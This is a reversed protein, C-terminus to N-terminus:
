FFLKGSFYNSFQLGGYLLLTIFKWVVDLTYWEVYMGEHHNVRSIDAWPQWNREPEVHRWELLAIMWKNIFIGFNPRSWAQFISRSFENENWECDMWGVSGVVFLNRRGDLASTSSCFWPKRSRETMWGIYFFFWVGKSVLSIKYSWRWEFWVHCVSLRPGLPWQSSLKDARIVTSRIQLNSYFVSFKQLFSCTSPMRLVRFFLCM